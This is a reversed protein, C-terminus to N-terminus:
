SARGHVRVLEAVIREAHVGRSAKVLVVDGSSLREQVLLDAAARADACFATEAGAREFPELLWRADGGVAIVKGAKWEVLAEGSERHIRPSLEGLERMEGLVLVLRGGRAQAIESATTVSSLLSAPNSNYTDDLVVAGNRLSLPVLRGPEGMPASAFARELAEASVTAGSLAEAAAVGASLAYAGPRGLLPTSVVLEARDPRRLTLRSGGISSDRDVIRYDADAAFGYRLKSRAPARELQRLVRLDDANGLASGHEPLGEFLSGEEREVGDLDGLGATHELGIVTLVAADPRACDTLSKVEGLANTGIEVVAYRHEPTLGLLVMPVGIANNLNGPVAHVAGPALAELVVGTASRTTTKGASGAIAVLKGGWRVRHHRALAALAALTSQVRVVPVGIDGIEREVLVARAGSRLAASAFAHGDFREGALAIFLKGGLDGRSDTSVGEVSAEAGASLTGSTVRAVEGLTFPARNEPIASKM